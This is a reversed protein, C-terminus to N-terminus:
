KAGLNIVYVLEGKRMVRKLPLNWHKGLTMEWVKKYTQIQIPDRVKKDFVGNCHHLRDKYAAAFALVQDTTLLVEKGSLLTDKSLGAAQVLEDLLSNIENNM